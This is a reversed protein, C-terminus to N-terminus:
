SRPAWDGFVLASFSEFEQVSLLAEIGSDPIGEWVNKGSKNIEPLCNVLRVGGRNPQQHYLGTKLDSLLSGLLTSIGKEILYRGDASSIQELSQDYLEQLYSSHDSPTRPYPTDTSTSASSSTPLIHSTFDYLEITSNISLEMEIEARVEKLKMEWDEITLERKLPMNGFIKEVSKEVREAVGKWGENLFWWSYTLFLREAEGRLEEEEQKRLALIEENERVITSQVTSGGLFTPLYSSISSRSSEVYESLGMSEISYSSLSFWGKKKTPRPKGPTTSGEEEEEEVQIGATSTVSQQASPSPDELSSEIDKMYKSRALISLQSATLLYLMPLLYITTITRTLSQSKLERWLDKKSRGQFKNGRPPSPHSQESRSLDSPPSPSSTDTPPLSISQSVISSMADERDIQGISSGLMGESETETETESNSSSERRQSTQGNQGNQFESAWSESTSTSTVGVEPSPSPSPRSPPVDARTNEVDPQPTTDSLLLSNEKQNQNPDLSSTSESLESSSTSSIDQLAQSIEEVNYKEFLSPQITPLLAYLTFSITSILSTFHNKMLDRQKREKIARLRTEKLRELIYSSVFWVTSATGVFFFLRRVRKSWPNNNPAPGAM